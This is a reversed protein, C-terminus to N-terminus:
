RLGFSEAVCSRVYSQWIGESVSVNEHGFAWLHTHHDFRPRTLAEIRESRWEDFVHWDHHILYSYASMRVNSPITFGQVTLANSSVRPQGDSITPRLRLTEPIVANLFPLANLDKWSPLQHQQIPQWLTQLEARLIHQARENKLLEYLTHTLTM